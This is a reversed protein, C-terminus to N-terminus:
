KIGLKLLEAIVKIREEPKANLISPTIEQKFLSKM